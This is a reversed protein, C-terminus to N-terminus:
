ERKIANFNRFIKTDEIPLNYEAGNIDRFKTQM